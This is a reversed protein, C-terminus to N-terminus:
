GQTVEMVKRIIDSPNFPRGDYRLGVHDFTYGTHMKILQGLQATVNCEILINKRTKHIEEQMKKAPFPEMYVVQVLRTKLGGNRLEIMAELIPGKNGGWSVITISADDDGFIRIPNLGEVEEAIHPTKRFRKEVMDTVANPISTSYGTEKHENSTSNVVAGLTGPILRPSVGDDTLEYRKYPVSREEIPILKGRDVPILEEHFSEVDRESEALYKDTLIIAPIQYKEALNFAQKTLQFCEEIDSPAIVIRPFEGQGAHIAFLLDAQASHTALGTSPGPRQGINIVIPNESMAAFGLAESMLSFGGGSTATMARVGAYSAGVVMNIVALESEAQVAVVGARSGKNIMWDLIPSAPTMPYASFFKLGASVAGLALADNGTLLLRNIESPSKITCNFKSLNEKAFKYGSQVAKVNIERIEAKKFTSSIVETLTTEELDLLRFVAGLAVTNRMIDPGSLAKVTSTMPVKYLHLDERGLEGQNLELTEDVLIDGGPNLESAHIRVTEMNLAVLVDLNETQSFVPRAATRLQYYNHGGRILSPYENTGFVHLGSRMLADSLLTGSRTIGQGAEGGILINVTDDRLGSCVPESM